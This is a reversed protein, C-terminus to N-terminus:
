KQGHIRTEELTKSLEEYFSCREPLPRLNHPAYVSLVAISGGAVLIKLVGIRNSVPGFGLIQTQMRRSIVFGVGAWERSGTGSGSLLVLHGSETWLKDSKLRRTEQICMIDISNAEM